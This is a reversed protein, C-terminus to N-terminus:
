TCVLNTMLVEFAYVTIKIAQTERNKYIRFVFFFFQKEFPIELVFFLKTCNEVWGDIMSVIFMFFTVFVGLLATLSNSQVKNLIENRLSNESILKGIRISYKILLYM